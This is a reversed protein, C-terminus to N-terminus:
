GYGWVTTKPMGTPLIQQSFQRAAIEYYDITGNNLTSTKSMVSPVKLPEVFKPITTPDLTGGPVFAFSNAAALAGLLAGLIIGKRKMTRLRRQANSQTHEKRESHVERVPRGGKREAFLSQRASCCRM